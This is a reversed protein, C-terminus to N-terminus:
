DLNRQVEATPKQGRPVTCDLSAAVFNKLMKKGEPSAYIDKEIKRCWGCWTTTFHLYLPKGQAKAAQVAGAYTTHFDKVDAAHVAGQEHRVLIHKIRDQQFLEDYIPLVAGGPYGFIHEVGQDALAELVM